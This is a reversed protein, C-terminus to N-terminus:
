PRTWQRRERLLVPARAIVWAWARLTQVFIKRNSRLARVLGLVGYRLFFEPLVRARAHLLYFAFLNKIKHFAIGESTFVHPANHVYARARPVVVIQYGLKLVRASLEISDVYIFFDERFGKLARMLRLPAFTMAGDVCTARFPENFQGTDREGNGYFTRRYVAKLHFEGGACLITRRDDDYMIGTLLGAEPHREAYEVLREVCDREVVVDDNTCYVYDGAAAEIGRNMGGTFGLNERNSILRVGPRAAVVRAIEESSRSRNDVVIVELNAYTQALVSDLARPLLGPRDHSLIVVSVRPTHSKM